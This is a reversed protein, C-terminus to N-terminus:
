TGDADWRVVLIAVDDTAKTVLKNVLYAAVDPTRALDIGEVAARLKREGEVADRDAETVGDTYLVLLDADSVDVTGSAATTASVHRYGLPLSGAPLAAVHGDKYRVLAPPHGASAFCLTRSNLLLRGVFATVMVDREELALVDDVADLIRSPDREVQAVSRIGRRTASMTTSAKIGSGMADGISLMLSGDRLTFIDYWDGGIFFASEASRYIANFSVGSIVPLKKPLATEQFLRSVQQERQFDAELTDHRQRLADTDFTIGVWSSVHGDANLVPSAKTYHWRYSGDAARLRNENAFPRGSAIGSAYLELVKHDDPHLAEVWTEPPRHADHGTLEYFNKSLSLVTGNPTATWLVAPLVETLLRVYEVNESLDQVLRRQADIDTTTGFWRVIRGCREEIPNARVLFWRYTGNKVRMRLEREWVTKGERAARWAHEVPDKDDPHLYSWAGHARIAELPEDFIDGWRSNVYEIQGDSDAIWILQPVANALREFWVAKEQFASALRKEQEIDTCSGVWQVIAGGDARVPTGRGLFWRYTGDAARIRYEVEYPLGTKVSTTWAAMTRAADDPHIARLWGGDQAQEATLGTYDYCRQNFYTAQGLADTVFVINPLFEAMIISSLALERSSETNKTREDIV